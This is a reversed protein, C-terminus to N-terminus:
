MGSELDIKVMTRVQQCCNSRMADEYGHAFAHGVASEIVNVRIKCYSNLVLM